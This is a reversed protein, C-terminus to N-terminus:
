GRATLGPLCSRFSGGGERHGQGKAEIKGMNIDRERDTELLQGVGVQRRRGDRARLAMGRGTSADAGSCFRIGDAGGGRM